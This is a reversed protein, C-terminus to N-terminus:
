QHDLMGDHTGERRQTFPLGWSRLSNAFFFFVDVMGHVARSCCTETVLFWQVHEMYWSVEFHQESFMPCGTLAIILEM